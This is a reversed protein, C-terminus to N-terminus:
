HEIQMLHATNLTRVTSLRHNTLCHILQELAVHEGESANPSPMSNHELVVWLDARQVSDGGHLPQGLGSSL